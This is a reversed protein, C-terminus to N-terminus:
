ADDDETKTVYGRVKEEFWRKSRDLRKSFDGYRRGLAAAMRGEAPTGKAWGEAATVALRRVQRAWEQAAPAESSGAARAAGLGILFRSFPASLGPWYYHDIDPTKDAGFEKRHDEQLSHLASGAEDALTIATGILAGLTEDRARLLPVPAPIQEELWTEVVAGKSDLRQGFVRLTHVTDLPILGREALEAIQDLAVPRQRNRGEEWVDTLLLEVSHRWIGRMPHLRVPYMPADAKFRGRNDRRRRFAAMLEEDPAKIDLRTGPTIVVGDVTDGSASLLVRRSPWTLLDTWGRAVRKDPTPPTPADEWVPRDYETTMRPKELGPQYVLANLLLTEKLTEGEVLVVGFRNCPAQESSKDKEYPTKMGGPDFAHLTVLWRAAEAASLTVTDTATTHDFLTVNNGVARYPVLKAASSPDLGVLDPCQMFPLRQHFLDFRERHREAYEAIPDTPLREAKWLASWEAESAPGDYARHLIALLLRHLAATMTPAETAIRRIAHAQGFLDVIGTSWHRGDTGMVPIWEQTLLDFSATAARSAPMPTRAPASAEQQTPEPEEVLLGFHERYRLVYGAVECWGDNLLLYRYERLWPSDRFPPPVPTAAIAQVVEAPVGASTDLTIESGDLAELAETGPPIPATLDIPPGGLIPVARGDGEARFLVVDVSEAM